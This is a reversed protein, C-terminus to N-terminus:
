ALESKFENNIFDLLNQESLPKSFYFSQIMNVGLERITKVQNEQEVGEAIVKTGIFQFSHILSEILFRRGIDSTINNNFDGILSKDLKVCEFPLNIVHFLNSYGTGFDDMYCGIGKKNLLNMVIRMHETDKEIVRETLELKLKSPEVNYKDLTDVIRNILYPEMFHQQSLNISISNINVNRNTSFFHCVEEIVYWGINVISGIEEAIPIFESPSVLQGKADSMRILAEASVFRNENCDFVPQYCLSFNRCVTAQKILDVLENRRFIENRIEQNLYITTNQPMRSKSLRLAGEVMTILDNGNNVDQPYSIEAMSINIMCQMYGIKWHHSFRETIKDLLGKFDSDSIQPLLYVFEVGNFRYLLCNNNTSRLFGAVKVIFDDGAPQGYKDNVNKFGRLGVFVVKFEKHMNAYCILSNYFAERNGLGTLHDVNVSKNQFSIFLLFNTYAICTGSLIIDPIFYQVFLLAIIIVTIAITLDIINHDLSKRVIIIGVAVVLTCFMLSVVSILAFKSQYYMKNEDFYFILHTLPSSLSLVFFVSAPILVAVRSIRRIFGWQSRKYILSILYFTLVVMVVALSAFFLSNILYNFWLPM